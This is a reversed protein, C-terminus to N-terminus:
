PSAIRRASAYSIGLRDFAAWRHEEDLGEEFYRLYALIVAREDILELEMRRSEEFALEVLRKAEPSFALGELDAEEFTSMWLELMPVPGALKSLIPEVVGRRARLFGYLFDGVAISERGFARARGAIMRSQRDYFGDGSEIVM